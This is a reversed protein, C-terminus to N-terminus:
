AAEEQYTPLTFQFRAGPGANNAAALRGGHAEIISRCISLGMGMGGSKTTFFANFLRDASDAAIGVGSDTVDVVVRRAEDQYSRIVLEHARGVIPQMAEVGNMVLNIIVQQLQVRDALVVPLAPALELRWGVQRTTLERQVLGIVEDIIGNIDLLEKQPEANKALNRVRRIVEAARNGEKIIWEAARRAEDLNPTAGDLWRLCASAANVVAALPQNVEHSISATMEGLMTVRTVHALEMQAKQLKEEARKTETVDVVAGVYELEGARNRGVHAVVRAFKVSGDPMLFRHEYDLDQCGRLARERAQAVLARDEPHVRELIMEFTLVHSPDYGLIRFLEESGVREGTSINWFFSGTQSVRQAEILKSESRRLEEEARKRDEIDTSSGYWKAIDGSEDRLPVARFLFWRYEGDYRRLRAELEGPAGSARIASWKQLMGKKDEPHFARPWGTEAQDLALSTYDLATQNLFDPIGEPTSRWVLAPITDVVLRLRDESRKIEDFATQLKEKALYQETVDVHTGVLQEVEGDEGLFPHGVSHIHRISGGPLAIRFDVEFDAKGRVAQHVKEIVRERDGPLIRDYFPQPSVTDSKPDLGFLNYVEQSRYVFEELHADWAWSSTRSLRQAEALYTESRRLKQETERAATVDTVAGVFEVGGSAGKAAQAVARVYKVTGDPMQLRHEFDFEEGDRSARDIIRQVAARDEPHTRQVISAITPETTRDCGFIRFTEDTWVLDGSKVDWCFSGTASLKQAANLYTESRRLAAETRAQDEIAVLLDNGSRQLDNATKRQASIVIAVVTATIFFLVQRPVEGPVTTVFLDHKWLSASSPPALYCHFALVGLVVALLAPGLGGFWAAFIVACLLSSVIAEANLLRTLFEAAIIAAGVSSVSLAFATAFSTSWPRSVDSRTMGGARGAGTSGSLMKCFISREPRRRSNWSRAARREQANPDGPLRINTCKLSPTRRFEADVWPSIAIAIWGLRPTVRRFRRKIAVGIASGLRVSLLM